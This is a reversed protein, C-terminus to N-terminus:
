FLWFQVVLEFETMCMDIDNNKDASPFRGESGGLGEHDVEGM